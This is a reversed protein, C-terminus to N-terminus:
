GTRPLFVREEKAAKRPEPWGGQLCTPRVAETLKGGGGRGRPSQSRAARVASHETARQRARWRRGTCGGCPSGQQTRRPYCFPAHRLGYHM